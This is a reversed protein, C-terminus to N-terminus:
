EGEDSSSEAEVSAHSTQQRAREAWEILLEDAGEDPVFPETPPTSKELQLMLQRAGAKGKIADNVLTTILAERKSIRRIRGGERVEIMQDLEAELLKGLSRTKPKRGKRNGSQGKKYRSHKPPSAYGVKEDEAM